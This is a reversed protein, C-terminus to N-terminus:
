TSQSQTAKQRQGTNAIDGFLAFFSKCMYDFQIGLHGIWDM